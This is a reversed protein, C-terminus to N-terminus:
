GSVRVVRRGQGDWRWEADDGRLHVGGLWRDIGGRARDAQGALV